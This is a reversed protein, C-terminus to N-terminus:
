DGAIAAICPGCLRTRNLGHLNYDNICKMQLSPEMKRLMRSALFQTSFIIQKVLWAPNM